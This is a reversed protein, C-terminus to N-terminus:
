LVFDAYRRVLREYVFIRAFTSALVLELSFFPAGSNKDRRCLSGAREYSTSLLVLEYSTVHEYNRSVVHWGLLGLSLDFGVEFLDGRGGLLLLLSM